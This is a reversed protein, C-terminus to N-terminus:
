SVLRPTADFHRGFGLVAHTRILNALRLDSAVKASRVFISNNWLTKYIRNIAWNVLCTFSGGIAPPGFM